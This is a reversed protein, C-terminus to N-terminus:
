GIVACYKRDHSISTKELGDYYKARLPEGLFTPLDIAPSLNWEIHYDKRGEGQVTIEGNLIFSTEEKRVKDRKIASLRNFPTLFIKGKLLSGHLMGPLFTSVVYM